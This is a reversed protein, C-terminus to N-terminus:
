WLLPSLSSGSVALFPWPFQGGQTWGPQDRHQFRWWSDRVSLQPTPHTVGLLTKPFRALPLPKLARCLLVPFASPPLHLPPKDACPAPLWCAPVVSLVVSPPALSCPAHVWPGWATCASSVGTFSARVSQSGAPSCGPLGSSGAGSRLVLLAGRVAGARRDSSSLSPRPGIVTSLLM